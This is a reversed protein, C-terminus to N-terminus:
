AHASTGDALLDSIKIKSTAKKLRDNIAQWASTQPLDEILIYDPAYQDLLRLNRYLNQAYSAVNAKAYIWQVIQNHSELPEQLSIVGIKKTPFRTIFEIIEAHTALSTLAQPAYHSKLNGSIRQTSAHQALKCGLVEELQQVNIQGHRLLAPIGSSCDIITSEIGITCTGGDLVAALSSQMGLEEIVDAASTPSIRGFRNASPGVLGCPFDALVQLTLPHAPIRVAVTDQAGTIIPSIAATKKFVLTLPGPWFHQALKYAYDPIASAVNHLLDISALHVILPHNNPRNKVSFVEKVAALNRADAGLGYVTETPFSVLKGALLLSAAIQHDTIIKANM